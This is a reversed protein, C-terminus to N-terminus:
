KDTITTKNTMLIVNQIYIFVNSVSRQISESYQLYTAKLKSVKPRDVELYLHLYKPM